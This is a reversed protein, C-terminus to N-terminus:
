FALSKLWYWFVLFLGGFVHQRLLTSDISQWVAKRLTAWHYHGQRTHSPSQTGHDGVGCFIVFCFLVVGFIGSKKPPVQLKTNRNVEFVWNKEHWMLCHYPTHQSCWFDHGHKLCNQVSFCINRTDYHTKNSYHTSTLSPSLEEDRGIARAKGHSKWIGKM